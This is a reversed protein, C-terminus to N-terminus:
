WSYATFSIALTQNRASATAALGLQCKLRQLGDPPEKQLKSMFTAVWWWRPPFYLVLTPYFTTAIGRYNQFSKIVQPLCAQMGEIYDGGRGVMHVVVQWIQPLRLVGNARGSRYIDLLLHGVACIIKARTNYHTGRLPEKMKAFLNYDDENLV